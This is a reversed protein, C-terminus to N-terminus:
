YVVTCLTGREEFSETFREVFVCVSDHFYFISISRATVKGLESYRVFKHTYSECSIFAVRVLKDKVALDYVINNLWVYSDYTHDFLISYDSTGRSPRHAPLM